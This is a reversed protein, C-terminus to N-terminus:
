SDNDSQRRRRQRGATRHSGFPVTSSRPRHRARDRLRRRLGPSVVNLLSRRVTLSGDMEILGLTKFKQLFRNIRARTTGVIEALTTQSTRPIPKKRTGRHGYGALILLTRALRQEASSLLQDTLDDEVWMIRSLLHAMFLDALRPETRLLRVMAAKGVVLVTSRTMATAKRTRIPGGALCEEGFFDGPRLIAVVAERRGSVSLKVLGKLVYMLSDAAEGASFIVETEGITRTQAASALYREITITRRAYLPM